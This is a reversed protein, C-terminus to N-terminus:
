KTFFITAMNRTGKFGEAGRWSFASSIVIDCWRTQTGCMPECFDLLVGDPNQIPMYYCCRKRPDLSDNRLGVSINVHPVLTVTAGALFIGKITSGSPLTPRYEWDIPRLTEDGMVLFAGGSWPAIKRRIFYYSVFPWLITYLAFAVLRFDIAEFM